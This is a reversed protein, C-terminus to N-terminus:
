RQRNRLEGHARAWELMASASAPKAIVFGQALDCMMRSLLDLTERSEVGEAIVRLGLDKAMHVISRVISADRESTAMQSVFSRDVKLSALPLQKLTTLSSFGVGFDDVSFCIGLAHLSAITDIARAPDTFMASETIEFHLDTAPLGRLDLIRQVDHVLGKDMLVRASLNVCMTTQLGADRWAVYQRASEDLVYLTLARIQDGMEAIPVFEDPAIAGHEPHRWRALAEVARLRGDPLTVIPQYHVVIERRGIAEDLANALALRRPTFRELGGSYLQAKVGKRKAEYMAIDACRLLTSADSGHMPCIAAGVSADIVLHLMGVKFPERLATVLSSAAAAVMDDDGVDRMVIAFEDGGLRAIEGDNRELLPALRPGILKLLQDGAHHGLADNIEKFRDLDMLLLALRQRQRAAEPLLEGLREALWERNPLGTLPDHRAQHELRAFARKRGTVDRWTSWLGTLRGDEVVGVNSGQVWRTRGEAVPIQFEQESLRYGARIWELAIRRAVGDPLLTAIQRGVLTGGTAVGLLKALAQNAEVILARAVIADAQQEAPLGVDIPSDFTAGLIAETSIEVYTRYRAESRALAAALKRRQENTMTRTVVDAVSAAFSREDLTWQRLPGVHEHCVVGVVEGTDVRVPAELISTIGLPKLYGDALERAAPDHQADTLALARSQRLARMYAPFSAVDLEAGAMQQGLSQRHLSRCMLKSGDDSMLWIGTREVELTTGAVETIEEFAREIPLGIHREMTALSLLAAHQRRMRRETMVSPPIQQMTGVVRVANGSADRMVRGKAAFCRTGGHMDFISFEAECEDARAIANALATEFRPKDIPKLLALFAAKTAEFEGSPYGFLTELYPSLAMRDTTVSWEWLGIGSALLATQVFAEPVGGLVDPGFSAATHNRTM